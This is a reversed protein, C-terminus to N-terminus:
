NKTFGPPVHIDSGGEVDVKLGPTIGYINVDNLNEEFPDEKAALNEAPKDVTFIQDIRKHILIIKQDLANIKLLIADVEERVRMDFIRRQEHSERIHYAVFGVVVLLQLFLLISPIIM